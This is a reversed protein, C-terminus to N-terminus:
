VGGISIIWTGIYRLLATSDGPSVVLCNFYHMGSSRPNRMNSFVLEVETAAPVAEVPYLRILRNDEDWVVEDLAVEEGDVEIRIDDTDFSGTFSEPYSVAFESVALEM